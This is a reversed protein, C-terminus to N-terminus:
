VRCAAARSPGARATTRTTPRVADEVTAVGAVLGVVGVDPRRRGARAGAPGDDAWRGAGSSSVSGLQVRAAPTRMLRYTRCGSHTIVVAGFGRERRRGASERQRLRPSASVVRASERSRPPPDAPSPATVRPGRSGPTGRRARGASRTSWPRPRRRRPDGAGTHLDILLRWADDPYADLGCAARVADVAEPSTATTASGSPWRAGARRPAAIRLRDREAVVWEATGEEPLLDGTYHGLAAALAVRERRPRRRAAARPRRGPPHRLRAVDSRSGPPLQSATARATARSCPRGARAGGASCAACAPSRSRCAACRRSRTSTRGCARWWCTATCPTGRGCRWCGCRRAARAAAGDVPGGGRRRDRDRHPRAPARSRVPAAGPDRRHWPRRRRLRASAATRRAARGGVADVVRFTGATACGPSRPRARARRRRDTGSARDRASLRPPWARRGSRRCRHTWSPSGTRPRGRLPEAARAPWGTSSRCSRRAGPDCPEVAPASGPADLALLARGIRSLWPWGGVEADLM